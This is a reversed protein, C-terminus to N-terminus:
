RSRKSQNMRKTTRRASPPIVLPRQAIPQLHLEGVLTDLELDNTSVTSIYFSDELSGQEDFIWGYARDAQLQYQKAKAYRFLRNRAQTLSLSTPHSAMFVTAYGWLGAYATMADHYSSDRRSARASSRIASLIKLQGKGSLALLDAGCRIWGPNGRARLRDILELMEPAASMTPKRPREGDPLKERNMWLSLEVCNDGVMTGVFSKKHRRRENNRVPPTTPHTAKIEDPDDEVYLDSALFLMYLDLEDLARYHTMVPSDTRRRLYLLFEAPREGIEAIVALDHLSLVIPPRDAPVIGSQQLDALNTGLPGIDDLVVVVTRVERILSLDVWSTPSEWFGGNTEILERVRTGQRAGDGITAKLDATLRRVDGRRAQGAISKGKVEAIIAVDDVTFLVDGEVDDSLEQVAQSTSDLEAVAVGSKPWRYHYGFGRAATGVIAELYTKALQESVPQRAKQDYRRVDRSNVPLAKEFIRRLVDSGIENSTLVFNDVGDSVLPRTLFANDGMLLKFVRDVPSVSDDFQQAFSHMVKRAIDINLGSESSVDAPTIVARDAPLFMFPIMGAMFQNMVEAPVDKPHLHQNSMLLDGTEDRLRTTRNASIENMAARAALVDGHSYGLHTQMLERVQATEFLRRDHDDRIHDYQLNRINLAAGQYESALRALPEVSLKGETLQRYSAIRALRTCREHLESIVEHPRTNERPTPDPKRSVRGLLLTGVIEVPLSAGGPPAMRPDPTISFERMRMLEIVDFADADGLLDLMASVEIKVHQHLIARADIPSKCHRFPAIERIPDGFSEPDFDGVMNGLPPSAHVALELPGPTVLM